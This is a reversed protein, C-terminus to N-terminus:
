GGYGDTQINITLVCYRRWVGGNSWVFSKNDLLLRGTVNWDKCNLTDGVIQGAAVMRSENTTKLSGDPLKEMTAKGGDTV